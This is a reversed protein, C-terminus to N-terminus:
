TTARFFYYLSSLSALILDIELCGLWLEGDFCTGESAAPRADPRMLLSCYKDLNAFDAPAALNLGVMGTEFLFVFGTVGQAVTVKVDVLVSSASSSSSQAM